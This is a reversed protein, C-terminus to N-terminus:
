VQIVTYVEFIDSNFWKSGSVHTSICQVTSMNFIYCWRGRWSIVQNSKNTLDSSGWCSFKCCGLTPHCQSKQLRIKVYKALYWLHPFFQQTLNRCNELTDCNLKVCKQDLCCLLIGAFSWPTFQSLKAWHIKGHKCYDQHKIIDQQM